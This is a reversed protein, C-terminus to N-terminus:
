KKEDYYSYRLMEAVQDAPVGNNIEDMLKYLACMSLFYIDRGKVGRKILSWTLLEREIVEKKPAYIEKRSVRRKNQHGIYKEKM